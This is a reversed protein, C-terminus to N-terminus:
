KYKGSLGLQCDVDAHQNNVNMAGHRISVLMGTPPNGGGGGPAQKPRSTSILPTTLRAM